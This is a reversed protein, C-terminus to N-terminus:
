ELCGLRCSYIRLVTPGSFGGAAVTLQAGDLTRITQPALSLLKKTKNKTMGWQRVGGRDTADRDILLAFHACRAM